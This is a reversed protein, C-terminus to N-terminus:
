ICVFYNSTRICALWHNNNDQKNRGFAIACIHDRSECAYYNGSDWNLAFFTDTIGSYNSRANRGYNDRYNQTFSRSRSM